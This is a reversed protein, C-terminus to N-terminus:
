DVEKVFRNGMTKLCNFILYLSAGAETALAAIEKELLDRMILYGGLTSKEIFDGSESNCVRFEQVRTWSVAKGVSSVISKTFESEMLWGPDHRPRGIIGHEEFIAVRCGQTAATFAAYCVAPGGGM